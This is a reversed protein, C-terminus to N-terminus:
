EHEYREIEAHNLTGEQLLELARESIVLVDVDREADESYVSGIGFDDEGAEGHIKLWHCQPLKKEPARREFKDSKTTEASALEYGTLESSSLREKCDDTVLYWKTSNMLDDGM